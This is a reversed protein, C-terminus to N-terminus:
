RNDTRRPTRPAAPESKVEDARLSERARRPGRPHVLVAPPKAPTIPASGRALSKMRATPAHAVSKAKSIQATQAATGQALVELEIPELRTTPTGHAKPMDVTPAREFVKFWSRNSM